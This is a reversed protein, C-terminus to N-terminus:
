KWDAGGRKLACYGTIPGTGSLSLSAFLQPYQLSWSAPKRSCSMSNPPVGKPSYLYLSRPYDYMMPWPWPAPFAQSTHLLVLPSQQVHGHLSFPLTVQSRAALSRSWWLHLGFSQLVHLGLAPLTPDQKQRPNQIPRSRVCGHGGAGAGGVCVFVIYRFFCLLMREFVVKLPGDHFATVSVCSCGSVCFGADRYVLPRLLLSDPGPWEVM